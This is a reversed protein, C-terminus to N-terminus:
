RRSGTEEVADTDSGSGPEGVRPRTPGLASIRDEIGDLRTKLEGLRTDMARLGQQIAMLGFMVDASRPERGSRSARALVKAVPTGTLKNRLFRRTLVATHQLGSHRLHFAATILPNDTGPRSSLTRVFSGYERKLVATALRQTTAGKNGERLAAALTSDSYQAFIPVVTDFLQRRLNPPTRRSIWELQSIVWGLLATQYVELLRRETLWRNITDHHTFVQFLRADATAM